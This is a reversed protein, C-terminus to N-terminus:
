LLKRSAKTIIKCRGRKGEPRCWYFAATTHICLCSMIHCAGTSDNAPAAALIIKQRSLCANTAVFSAVFTKDRCFQTKRSLYKVHCKKIKKTGVSFTNQRLFSVQPLERWHYFVSPTKVGPCSVLTVFWCLM